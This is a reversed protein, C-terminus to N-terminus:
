LLILLEMEKIKKINFSYLRYKYDDIRYYYYADYYIYNIDFNKKAEYKYYYITLGIYILLNFFCILIDKYFFAFTNSGIGFIISFALGCGKM